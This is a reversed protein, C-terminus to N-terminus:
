IRTPFMKREYILKSAVSDINGILARDERRKGLERSKATTTRTGFTVIDSVRAYNQIQLGEKVAQTRQKESAEM